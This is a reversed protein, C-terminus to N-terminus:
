DGMRFADRLHRIERRGSDVRVAVVDFRCVPVPGRREALYAQAAAALRRRKAADVAEEPRGGLTTGRAKVEVFVLVEGDMAVIDLEGGQTLVNRAEISYGKSILYQGAWQEATRGLAQAAKSIARSTM